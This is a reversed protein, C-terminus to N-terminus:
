KALVILSPTKDNWILILCCINIVTCGFGPQCSLKAWSLGLKNQFNEQFWKLFSLNHYSDFCDLFLINERGLSLQTMDPRTHYPKICISHSNQKFWQIFPLFVYFCECNLFHFFHCRFLCPPSPDYLSPGLKSKLM